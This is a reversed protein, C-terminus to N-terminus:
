EINQIQERMQEILVKLELSSNTVEINCAKSGLTNAERNLEQMLFDLRRGAQADQNLLRKVEGLHSELRDLEEAVDMKTILILMEQELRDPDLNLALDAAKTMIRNRQYDIMAPLHARLQSIHRLAQECRDLIMGAIQIGEGQRGAVVADLAENLLKLLPEALTDADPSHKRIVGPWRLIDMPNIPQFNKVPLREVANILKTTLVLDLPLGEDSSEEAEFRLMCDVKGRGLRATILKRLSNELPRLEEPLRFAVELYRHNVTKIECTACGWEGNAASRGFATMSAIM